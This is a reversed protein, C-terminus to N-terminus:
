EFKWWYIIRKKGPKGVPDSVWRPPVHNSWCHIIKQDIGTHELDGPVDWNFPFSLVCHKALKQIEEFVKYQVHGLHEFVQLGLFLDYKVLRSVPWPTRTADWEHHVQFEGRQRIDMTTSGPVFPKYAPGLEFVTNPQIGDIFSQVEKYYDWRGEYYKPALKELELFEKYTM